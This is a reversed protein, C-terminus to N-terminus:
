MGYIFVFRDHRREKNLSPINEYKNKAFLREPYFIQNNPERGQQNMLLLPLEIFHEIFNLLCGISVFNIWSFFLDFHDWM